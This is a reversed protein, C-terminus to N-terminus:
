LGGRGVVKPTSVWLGSWEKRTRRGVGQSRRPRDSEKRTEPSARWGEVSGM